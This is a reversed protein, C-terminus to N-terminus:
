VKSTERCRCIRQWNWSISVFSQWVLGSTECREKAFISVSCTQAILRAIGNSWHFTIWPLSISGAAERECEKRCNLWKRLAILFTSKLIRFWCVRPLEVDHFDVFRRVKSSNRLSGVVNCKTAVKTSLSIFFSILPLFKWIKFTFMQYLSFRIIIFNFKDLYKKKFIQIYLLRFSFIPVGLRM